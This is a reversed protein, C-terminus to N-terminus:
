LNNQETSLDEKQDSKKVVVVVKKSEIKIDEKKKNYDRNSNNGGSGNGSSSSSSESKGNGDTVVKDSVAEKTDDLNNSTDDYEFLEEVEAMVLEDGGKEDIKDIEVELTKETFLEDDTYDEEEGEKAEDKEEEEHEINYDFDIESDSDEKVLSEEEIPSYSMKNVGFVDSIRGKWGRRKSVKKCSVYCCVLILILFFLVLALSALSIGILLGMWLLQSNHTYKVCSGTEKANDYPCVSCNSGEWHSSCGLCDQKIDWNGICTTCNTEPDKNENSCEDNDNQLSLILPFLLLISILLLTKMM